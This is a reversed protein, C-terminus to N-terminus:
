GTIEIPVSHAVDLSSRGVLLDYRGPDVQWGPARREQQGGAMLAIQGARSSTEDWDAQGPDWYAFSRDELTLDVTTSEGPELRVKAFAKLEKPPRALRPSDPAVYLQVVESGARDGTNRVPVSVTLTDGPTFRDASLRPEGLEFTTYGLGHGFCFRPDIARHEFGRYGMFLGEGYRLQGNEGPFNDHAPSHELRVPLTTALRGGPEVAGPLVDALAPGLEQGGFWCQLVAAVDDAWPLDVPAAANVVVVTRPNAEAVRRVLEDQGGPLGFAGRDHGESEWDGSTGVVVVAVEADGAAAVAEDVLRAADPTRFGVRFASPAGVKTYEVVVEVPVDRTLEVEAVLDKSVMGFVETGGPPPPDAVGDLVVEGGLLVRAQGAQALGLEFTGSEEPVITGRVRVSWEEPLDSGGIEFVVVKLEDLHDTGIVEGSLDSTGFRELEFGDPARLVAGGVVTPTLSVEAGRAHVVEVGDGLAETLAELPSVLRHPTVQASGGGMICPSAARPGIVALKSLAGAALPLVGDNTLLVTAEAASRRLLDLDEDSQGQPRVPREPEDLAGVRDLTRLYSRVARDVDAEDVRGDKVADVLNAGLARGPVPMELDLGAGTSVETDAVAFWDTMVLGDFGWEDRLVGILLERQETVWSGNLRNYSTMIGLARGEKVALEFPLLYLERLSREDVVSDISSREFEAENGVFHKVTAFVGSSQAGRVYGAALRGSLLPDESYCEFNRGALPHRHLNVTPALLGRCGRDLAERGVLTGLAEALEPDWTAGIASGCPICTSPTGGVGPLDSGRAGNPGDTVNIRPIGLRDVSATAFLDGGATLAAKEELTLEGLLADVDGV